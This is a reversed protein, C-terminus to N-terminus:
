NFRKYQDFELNLTQNQENIYKPGNKEPKNTPPNIKEKNNEKWEKKGRRIPGTLGNM